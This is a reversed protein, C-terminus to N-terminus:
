YHHSKLFIHHLSALLLIPKTDLDRGVQSSILNCLCQGFSMQTVQTERTISSTTSIVIGDRLTLILEIWVCAEKRTKRPSEDGGTQHLTQLVSKQYRGRPTWAQRSRRHSTNTIHFQSAFASGTFMAEMDVQRLRCLKNICEQRWEKILPNLPEVKGAELLLDYHDIRDRLYEKTDM